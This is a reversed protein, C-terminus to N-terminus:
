RFVYAAGSDAATDPGQDDVGTARSDEAIAGVALTAGDRSLAVSAGFQDGAGTNSAKVYHRTTWRTGSRALVFVAGAQAATTDAADGDVGTASSADLAAGAALTNGDGSLAISGGLQGAAGLEAALHLQPILSAGSAAFVYIAGGPGSERPAGIALTTGDTSLALSTGFGSLPGTLASTLVHQQTWVTAGRTFVYVMGDNSPPDGERVAGAVLTQGDGSLALSSGLEGLAVPSRAKVYAQQSWTADSRTFVYIAGSDESTEDTQNAPRGSDERYAGVALTQGDDALAVTKGFGDEAGTNSAKLYAQQRWQSGTRSFVFAAGAAPAAENTDDGDVGVAASDESYAGVALISGDGSLAVSCGFFDDRDPHAAKLYAEQVWTQGTRRFVYVAGADADADNSELSGDGAEHPAGIALTQGDGSLAVSGGFGDGAGTNSAKVYARQALVADSPLDPPLVDHGADGHRFSELPVNCGALLAVLLARRM